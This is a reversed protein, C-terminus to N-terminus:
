ALMANRIQRYRPLTLAERGVVLKKVSGGFFAAATGNQNYAGIRIANTTTPVGSAATSHVEADAEFLKVTSGSTSLGVVLTQGRLDNTGYYANGAGVAGRLRGDTEIALWFRNAGADQAGAFIQVASLAAGGQTGPMTVLAVLYNSGSGTTYASLLNDDTGDFKAGTTQFTPQLTGTAQTANNGNGSLDDVRAIAEGVDDAPTTAATDQWTTATNSFDYLLGAKGGSFLSQLTFSAMARTVGHSMPRTMSGTVSM